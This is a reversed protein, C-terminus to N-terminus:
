HVFQCHLKIAMDKPSMNHSTVLTIRVKENRNVKEMIQKNRGLPITYHGSKTVQLNLKQNFMTVTDDRFNLETDAKKMSKKSLLLPIDKNVIDTEIFVSTKGIVAPIKVLQQSCVKEGDGFKFKNNSTKYVIKDKEEDNLSDIYCKMWINGCVTGAAGCDLVVKNMAEMTLGHLQRPEDYDSQFLTVQYYTESDDGDEEEM